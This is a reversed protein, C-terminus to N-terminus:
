KDVGKRVRYKWIIYGNKEAQGLFDANSRIDQFRPQNSEMCSTVAPSFPDYLYISSINRINTPSPLLNSEVSWENQEYRLSIKDFEDLTVGVAISDAGIILAATMEPVQENIYDSLNISKTMMRTESGYVYVPLPKALLIFCLLSLLVAFILSKM